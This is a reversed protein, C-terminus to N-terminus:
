ADRVRAKFPAYPGSDQSRVFSGMDHDASHPSKKKPTTEHGSSKAQHLDKLSSALEVRLRDAEALREETRRIEAELALRESAVSSLVAETNHLARSAKARTWGSFVLILTTAAIVTLKIRM